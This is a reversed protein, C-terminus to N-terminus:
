DGHWLLEDDDPMDDEAYRRDIDTVYDGILKEGQGCRAVTELPADLGSYNGEPQEWEEELIGESDVHAASHPAAICFPQITSVPRTLLNRQAHTWFRAALSSSISSVDLKNTKLFSLQDEIDHSSSNVLAGIKIGLNGSTARASVRGISLGLTPALNVRQSLAQVVILLPALLPLGIGSVGRYGPRWLAPAIDALSQSFTNAKINFSRLSGRLSNCVSIRIAAEVVLEIPDRESTSNLEASSVPRVTATSTQLRKTATIPGSSCHCKEQETNPVTSPRKRKRSGMSPVHLQTSESKEDQPRTPNGDFLIDADDSPLSPLDRSSSPLSDESFPLTSGPVSVTPSIGLITEGHDSCELAIPLDDEREEHVDTPMKRTRKVKAPGARSRSKTIVVAYDVAHLLFIPLDEPPTLDEPDADTPSSKKGLLITEGRRQSIDIRLNGNELSDNSPISPQINL